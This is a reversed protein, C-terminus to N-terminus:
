KSNITTDTKQNYFYKCLDRNRKKSFELLRYAEELEETIQTYAQKYKQNLYLSICLAIMLLIIITSYPM